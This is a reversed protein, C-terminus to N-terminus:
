LTLNFIGEHYPTLDMHVHVRLALFLREPHHRWRVVLIALLFRLVAASQNGM